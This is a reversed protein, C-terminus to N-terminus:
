KAAALNAAVDKWNVINWIANVYDPRV